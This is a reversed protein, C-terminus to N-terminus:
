IAQLHSFIPIGGDDEVVIEGDILASGLGLERSRPPSAASARRDLRARTADAAPDQRGDIRAQIRYGDYKIEHIWNPGTPPKSARRPSARNSSRRCCARARAAIKGIDPLLEQPAGAVRARQTTPACSRGAAALEENTRGSLLSTTEEDTIEPDGASRAFEDEAKILLWPETKEGRRPKMRVLHWRGKLREGDLM